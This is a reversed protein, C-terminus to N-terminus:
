VWAWFFRPKGSLDKKSESKAFGAERALQALADHQSVGTEVALLGGPNLRGVAGTLIERLDNLGDRGSVLANTPEFKVVEPEATTMEEDTLYPPNSVILDFRAQGVGAFWDSEVFNVRTLGNAVANEKALALADASVDVATVAADKWISALALALAGTGAGLDLVAAPPQASYHQVLLDALEETEPRPILARRNCKLILGFFEKM